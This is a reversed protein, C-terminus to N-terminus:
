GVALRVCWEVLMVAAVSGALWAGADSHPAGGLWRGRLVSLGLWSVAALDLGCLLTGTVNARLAAPLRGRLVNAWATTMGCAPCPRGFLVRFTCPPLGLQQHTGLGRPDPVLCRAVVLPALFGIAAAAVALRRWGILKQPFTSSEETV